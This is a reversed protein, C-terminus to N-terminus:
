PNEDLYMAIFSSQQDRRLRRQRESEGAHRSADYAEVPIEPADPDWSPVAVCGCNNHAAFDAADRYVAGRWSLAKCFDCGDARARRQWGSAAPDRVSAGIITLRAPSLTYREVPGALAPLLATAAAGTFLHRAAFRVMREVREPEVPDAVQARFRQRVNAGARVEDYWDAAVSAAGEGYRQVLFPVFQLLADRAKEPRELNLSGFFADLERRVAIALGAQIQRLGEALEDGSAM